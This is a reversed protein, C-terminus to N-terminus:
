QCNKWLVRTTLFLHTQMGGGFWCGALLSHGKRRIKQNESKWEGRLVTRHDGMRDLEEGARRWQEAVKVVCSKTNNANWQWVREWGDM